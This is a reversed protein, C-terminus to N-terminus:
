PLLFVFINRKSEVLAATVKPLQTVMCQWLQTYMNNIFLKPLTLTMKKNRNQLCVVASAQDNMSTTM